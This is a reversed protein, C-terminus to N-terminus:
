PTLLLEFMSTYGFQVKRNEIFLLGPAYGLEIKVPLFSTRIKMRINPGFQQLTHSESGILRQNARRQDGTTAQSDYQYFDAWYHNYSIRIGPYVFISNNDGNAIEFIKNASLYLSVGRKAVDPTSFEVYTNSAVDVGADISYRHESLTFEYGLRLGGLLIGSVSRFPSERPPELYHFASYSFTLRTASSDIWQAQSPALGLLLAFWLNITRMM